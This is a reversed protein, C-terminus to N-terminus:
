LKTNDLIWYAFKRHGKSNLHIGDGSDTRNITTDMPVIECWKLERVMRQQLKIYRNRCRTEVENSYGTMQIVEKPNYGIVVIPLAGMKKAIYVMEQINRITEDESVYSFSDNIGGYIIIENYPSYEYRDVPYKKMQELMWKTRKGGKSINDYKMGRNKAYQHQWGGKYATLSDGVFLVREKMYGFGMLITSLLIISFIKFQTIM